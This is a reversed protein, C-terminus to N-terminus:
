SGGFDNESEKNCEELLIQIEKLNVDERDSKAYILLMFIRNIEEEFFYICRYGGSKGRKLDSNKVRLKRVGASGPILVGLKPNETLFEIASKVDKKVSSFRRILKKICRKFSPTLVIDCSLLSQEGM